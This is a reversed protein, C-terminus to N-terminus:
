ILFSLLLRENLSRAWLKEVLSVGAAIHGGAAILDDVIMVMEGKKIADEHMEVIANSYELPYPTLDQRAAYKGGCQFYNKPWGCGDKPSNL